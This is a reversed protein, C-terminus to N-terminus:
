EHHQQKRISVAAFAAVTIWIAALAWSAVPLRSGFTLLAITVAVGSAIVTIALPNKLYRMNTHM